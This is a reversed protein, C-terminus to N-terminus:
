ESNVLKLKDNCTLKVFANCAPPVKSCLKFIEICDIQMMVICCGIVSAREKMKIYNSEVCRQMKLTVVKSHPSKETGSYM